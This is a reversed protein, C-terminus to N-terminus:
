AGFVKSSAIPSMPVITLRVDIQSLTIYMMRTTLYRPSIPARSSGPGRKLVSIVLTGTSLMWVWFALLLLHMGRLMIVEQQMVDNRAKEHRLDESLQQVM